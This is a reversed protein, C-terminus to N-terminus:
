LFIEPFNRLWRFIGYGGSFNAMQPHIYGPRGPSINKRGRVSSEPAMRDPHRFGAYPRTVTRLVKYFLNRATCTCESYSIVTSHSDGVSVFPQAHAPCLFVTITCIEFLPSLSGHVGAPIEFM